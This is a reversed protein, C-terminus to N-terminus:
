VRKGKVVNVRHELADAMEEDLLGFKSMTSRLRLEAPERPSERVLCIVQVKSSRVLERLIFSGLFGTAGTLFVTGKYFRDDLMQVSRWFSRLHLDM